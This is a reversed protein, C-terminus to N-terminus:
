RGTMEVHLAVEDVVEGPTLLEDGRSLREFEADGLSLEVTEDLLAPGVVETEIGAQRAPLAAITTRGEYSPFKWAHRKGAHSAVVEVDFSHPETVVGQGRLYDDEPSFSFRNVEGDLRRLTVAVNVDRPALPKDGSYAYVHYEPPVGDEFITLELAFDGDRLMRGNHPGREYDAQAAESEGETPAATEGCAALTLGVFLLALASRTTFNSAM